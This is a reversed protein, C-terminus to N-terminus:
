SSKVKEMIGALYPDPYYIEKTARNLRRVQDKGWHELCWDCHNNGGFNEESLAEAEIQYFWWKLNTRVKPTDNDQSYTGHNLVHLTRIIGYAEGYWADTTVFPIKTADYNLNRMWDRSAHLMMKIEARIANWQKESLKRFRQM